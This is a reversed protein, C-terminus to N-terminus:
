HCLAGLMVTYPVLLGHRYRLLNLMFFGLLIWGIIIVAYYTFTGSTRETSMGPPTPEPARACASPCRQHQVSRGLPRAASSTKGSGFPSIIRSKGEMFSVRRDEVPSM